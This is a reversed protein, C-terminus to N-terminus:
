YHKKNDIVEQETKRFKNYDVTEFWEQAIEYDYKGVLEEPTTNHLEAMRNNVVIYMGNRDKVFICNPSTNIIQRLMKENQKLKSEIKERDTIDNGISLVGSIEGNENKLVTNEWRILRESGNKCLVPNEYSSFEPM